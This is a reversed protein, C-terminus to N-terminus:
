LNKLFDVLGSELIVEAYEPEFALEYGISAARKEWRKWPIKSEIRRTKENKIAAPLNRMLDFLGEQPQKLVEFNWLCRGSDRGGILAVGAVNMVSRIKVVRNDSSFVVPEEDCENELHFYEFSFGKLDVFILEVSSEIEQLCSKAKEYKMVLEKGVNFLNM